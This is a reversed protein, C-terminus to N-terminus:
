NDSSLYNHNTFDGVYKIYNKPDSLDIETKCLFTFEYENATLKEIIKICTFPDGKSAHDYLKKRIEKKPRFIFSYSGKTPSTTRATSFAFLREIENTGIDSFFAQISIWHGKWDKLERNFDEARLKRERNSLSDDLVMRIADFLNTKGSGNEGIISNVGKTFKFQAESFNRFNKITLKELYM